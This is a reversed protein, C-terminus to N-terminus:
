GAVSRASTPSCYESMESDSTVRWRDSRSSMSGCIRCSAFCCKGIGLSRSAWSLGAAPFETFAAGLLPRSSRM